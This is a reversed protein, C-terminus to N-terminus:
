IGAWRFSSWVRNRVETALSRAYEARQQSNGEEWEWHSRMWQAPPAFFFFILWLDLRMALQKIESVWSRRLTQGWTGGGAARRATGGAIPPSPRHSFSTGEGSGACPAPPVERPPRPPLLGRDAGRCTWCPEPISPNRGEEQLVVKTCNLFFLTTKM